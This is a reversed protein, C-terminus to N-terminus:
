TTLFHLFTSVTVPRGCLVSGDPPFRESASLAWALRSHVECRGRPMMAREPPDFHPFGKSQARYWVWTISTFHNTHMALFLTTPDRLLKNFRLIDSARRKDLWM